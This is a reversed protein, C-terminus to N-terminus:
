DPELWFGPKRSTHIINRIVVRDGTISYLIAYRTNSIVLRRTGLLYEPGSEPYRELQDLAASVQRAFRRSAAESGAALWERIEVYDSLASRQTVIRM